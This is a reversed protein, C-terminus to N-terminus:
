QNEVFFSAGLVGPGGHVMIAPPLFATPVKILGIRRKLEEAIEQASDFNDGYEITLCSHQSKPCESVIRNIFSEIAKKHTRQSDVPVVQGNQVALLPKVQMLGGVMAKAAGIRGGRYLYDLTDVLFYTRNRESKGMVAKQIIDADMNKRAMDYAELVVTGLSAGILLTDIIRIDAQPFENKATSASRYTGSLKSSPCIILIPEGSKTLDELIPLYLLPNPAATTPLNASSKLKQIFQTTNIESDDRYSKEGFIVIQPLYALGMQKAKDVPICALTDAIIHTM